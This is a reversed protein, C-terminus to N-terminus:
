PSRAWSLFRSKTLPWAYNADICKDTEQEENILIDNNGLLLLLETELLGKASCELLCLTAVLLEKGNEKEFRAFVQDLLRLM